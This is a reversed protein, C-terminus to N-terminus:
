SNRIGNHKKLLPLEAFLRDAVLRAAQDQSTSLPELSLEDRGTVHMEGGVDDDYEDGNEDIAYHRASLLDEGMRAALYVWAWREELAGVEDELLERMLELDGEAAAQFQWREADESRGLRNALEMMRRASNTTHGIKDDLISPDSHQEALLLRAPWYGREAADRFYRQSVEKHSIHLAYADAWERQVPTLVIGKQDQRWWHDGSTKSGGAMVQHALGLAYYAEARGVEAEHQLQNVLFEPFEFPEADPDDYELTEAELTAIVDPMSMCVVDHERLFDFLAWSLAEADPTSFGLAECRPLLVKRGPGLGSLGSLLLHNTSLAAWSKFGFAGAFLDYVHSRKCPLFALLSLHAAHALVKLSNM